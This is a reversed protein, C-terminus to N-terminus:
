IEKNLKDYITKMEAILSKHAEVLPPDLQDLGKVRKQVENWLLTKLTRVEYDKLSIRM